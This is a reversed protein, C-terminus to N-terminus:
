LVIRFLYMYMFLREIWVDVKGYYVVCFLLIVEKKCKFSYVDDEIKYGCLVFKM